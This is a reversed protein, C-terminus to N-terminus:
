NSTAQGTLAKTLMTKIEDPTNLKTIKGLLKKSKADILLMFGTKGDNERYYNELGLLAAYQASQDKTFEDTLDFRTFFVPKGQFDRKVQNLKPELAKCSACWDAYFLMALLKPPESRPEQALHVLPAILLGAALM